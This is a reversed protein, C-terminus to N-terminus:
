GRPRVGAPAAVAISALKAARDVRVVRGHFRHWRGDSTRPIAIRVWAGPDLEAHVEVHVARLALGVLKGQVAAGHVRLAVPRRSVIMLRERDGEPGVRPELLDRVVALLRAERLTLPESRERRAKLRHFERIATLAAPMGALTHLDMLVETASFSRVTHM